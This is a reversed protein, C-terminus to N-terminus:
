IKYVHLNCRGSLGSSFPAQDPDRPGTEVELSAFM